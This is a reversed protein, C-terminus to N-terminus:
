SVQILQPNGFNGFGVPNFNGLGTQFNTPISEKPQLPTPPKEIKNIVVIITSPKTIGLSKLSDRDVTIKGKYVLKIKEIPADTDAQVVAKM